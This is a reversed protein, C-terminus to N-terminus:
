VRIFELVIQHDPVTPGRVISYKQRSWYIQGVLSLESHPLPFVGSARIVKENEKYAQSFTINPDYPKAIDFLMAWGLDTERFNLRYGFIYGWALFIDLNFNRDATAHNYYGYGKHRRIFDARTITNHAFFNVMTEAAIKLAACKTAKYYNTKEVVERKPLFERM